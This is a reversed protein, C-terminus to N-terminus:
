AFPTRCRANTQPPALKIQRPGTEAYRSYFIQANFRTSLRVVSM